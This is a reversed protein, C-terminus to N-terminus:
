NIILIYIIASVFAVPIATFLSFKGYFYDWIISIALPFQILISSNYYLLLRGKKIGTGILFSSVMNLFITTVAIAVSFILDLISSTLLISYFFIQSLAIGGGIATALLPLNESNRYKGSTIALIAGSLIVPFLLFSSFVMVFISDYETIYTYAILAGYIIGLLVGYILLRAFTGENIKRDFRSWHIYFIITFTFLSILASQYFNM